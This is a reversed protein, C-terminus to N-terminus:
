SAVQTCVGAASLSTRTELLLIENGPWGNQLSGANLIMSSFIEKLKQVYLKQELLHGHRQLM